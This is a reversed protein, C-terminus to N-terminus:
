NEYVLEGSIFTKLIKGKLRKGDFPSNVSKGSFEEPNVKREKNIDFLFLDAVSGKSLKGKNKLGLFQAPRLSLLKIIESISFGESMLSTITASFMTELGIVGFKADSLPLRKQDESRPMNNCSIFDIINNKLSKVLERRDDESRLPPSTKAFTRYNNAEVDTLSIHHPTVSASIKSNTEKYKELTQVSEKTSVNLAHYRVGILTAIALDRELGIKEAINPIGEVGLRSSILGENVVGGSSLYNDNPQHAILLNFNAAYECARRFIMSDQVNASGDSVGKIGAKKLLGIESLEKGEINKTVSGFITVNCYSKEKARNKIFELITTTDIAPTTDPMINITTVGGAVASKTTENLNEKYEGAPEGIHAQVEILGPALHMGECDIIKAGSTINSKELSGVSDIIGNKVLLEGKQETGNEPDVLIANKFLVVNKVETNPYSFKSM